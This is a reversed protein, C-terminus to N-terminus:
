LKRWADIGAKKMPRESSIEKRAYVPIFIATFKALERSDIVGFPRVYNRSGFPILVIWKDRFM